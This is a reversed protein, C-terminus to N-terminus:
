VLVLVSGGVLFLIQMGSAGVEGIVVLGAVSLALAIHFVRTPLDWIRVRYLFSINSM